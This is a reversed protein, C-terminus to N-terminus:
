DRSTTDDAEDKHAPVAPLPDAPPVPTTAQRLFFPSPDLFVIHSHGPHDMFCKKGQCECCRCSQTPICNSM